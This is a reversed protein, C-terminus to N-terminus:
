AAEEDFLTSTFYCIHRAALRLRRSLPRRRSVVTVDVGNAALRAAPDAFIGDGSALVVCDFRLQVDENDLVALLALDAGDPGSRAILRAGPWGLGVELCAGHNCAIVIHDEPGPRVQSFYDQRIAEIVPRGPRAKGALNEIDVLHIARHQNTRMSLVILCPSRSTLDCTM